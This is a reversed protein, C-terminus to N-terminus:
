LNKYVEPTFYKKKRINTINTKVVLFIYKDESEKRSVNKLHKDM